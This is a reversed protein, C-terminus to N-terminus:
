HQVNISIQKVNQKAINNEQHFQSDNFINLFIDETLIHQIIMERIDILSIDPNISEQCVKLFKERATIFKKNTNSQNEILKRLTDLISPLDENFTAIAKRFEKIEPREYNLFQNIIKDLDDPNSMNIRLSEQGNQILIATNTDEFLINDTPYGNVNIKEEIEEDLIDKDDKAEWYGWNLSLADKIVGDPYIAKKNDLTSKLGIEDVLTFNRSQCYSDLLNAFARRVSSENRSKGYRISKELDKYYQNILTRSM